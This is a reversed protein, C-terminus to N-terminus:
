PKLIGSFLLIMKGYYSGDFFIVDIKKEVIIEKLKKMDDKNIPPYFGPFLSLASKISSKRRIRLPYVKAVRSLAMYNRLSGKAGGDIGNEYDNCTIFLIKKM